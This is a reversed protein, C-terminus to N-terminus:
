SSFVRPQRDGAGPAHLWEVIAATLRAPQDRHPSHGCAPLIALRAHDPLLEAIREIQALTGYEDDVGQIALVPSAIRAVEPEINWARFAPRLWAHGWGWFASDPSAHYRGLRQRLDGSGYAACIAAISAIGVDEVFLHPAIAIVSAIRDPFRSAMLLAISAGDSHGLLHLPRQGQWVGVARLFDPVAEHAQIHMFDPQWDEGDPRPTSQGYGRRSFVLGQMGLAECLRQPYDRWMAVSGLGEHLFVVLPADASPATGVWQFEIHTDQGRFAVPAFEVAM